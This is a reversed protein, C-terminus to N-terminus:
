EPRLQARLLIDTNPCLTVTPMDFTMEEPSQHILRSPLILLMHIKFDSIMAIKFDAIMRSWHM